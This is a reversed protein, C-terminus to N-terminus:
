GHQGRPHPVKLQDLLQSTQEPTLRYQQLAMLASDFYRKRRAKDQEFIRNLLVPGNEIDLWALNLNELTRRLHTHTLQEMSFTIHNLQFSEFVLRQVAVRKGQSTAEDFYAKLRLNTRQQKGPSLYQQIRKALDNTEGVYYAYIRDNPTWVMWRYVAPGCYQKKMELSMPSPYIYDHEHSSQVDEWRHDIELVNM